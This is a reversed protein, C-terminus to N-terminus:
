KGGKAAIFGADIIVLLNLLGAICTYVFSVDFIQPGEDVIITHHQQIILGAVAPAGSFVQAIFAKNYRYPNINQFDSLWMGYVFAGTIMVLFIVAKGRRGLYFHGCGPMVWALLVALGINKKGSTNQNM